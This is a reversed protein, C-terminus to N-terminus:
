KSELTHVLNESYKCTLTGKLAAKPGNVDFSTISYAPASIVNGKGPLASTMTDFLNGWTVIVAMYGDKDGITFSGTVPLEMTSGDNMIVSSTGSAKMDEDIDFNASGGDNGKYQCSVESGAAHATQIGLVVFIATIILSKM